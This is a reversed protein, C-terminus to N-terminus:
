KGESENHAKIVDYLDGANRVIRKKGAVTCSAQKCQNEFVWWSVWDDNDGHVRGLNEFAASALRYASDFLTGDIVNSGFIPNLIDFSKELEKELKILENLERIFREKKRDTEKKM